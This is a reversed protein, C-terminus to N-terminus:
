GLPQLALQHLKGTGVQRRVEGSLIKPRQIQSRQDFKECFGVTAAALM